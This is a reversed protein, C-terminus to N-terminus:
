SLWTPKTPWEIETPFGTQQPVNLLATRYTALEQQQDATLSAYWIPNVSDIATLRANRQQRALIATQVLDVDWTKTTWNFTYIKGDTPKTPLLTPTGNDIYYIVGSYIGEIVGVGDFNLNSPDTASIQQLIQGTTLNYTTYNM